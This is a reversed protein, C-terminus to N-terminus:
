RTGASPPGSCRTVFKGSDPRKRSSGVIEGSPFNRTYARLRPPEDRQNSVKPVSRAGDESRAGHGQSGSGPESRVLDGGGKACTPHALDVLGAVRAQIAGDRDLDQGVCESGIGLEALPEVTFGARDWLEIM